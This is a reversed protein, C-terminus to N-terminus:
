VQSVEIVLDIKDEVYAFEYHDSADRDRKVVSQFDHLLGVVSPCTIIIIM